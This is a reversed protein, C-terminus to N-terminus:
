EINYKLNFSPSSSSGDLKVSESSTLSAAGGGPGGLLLVEDNRSWCVDYRRRQQLTVITNTFQGDAFRLCSRSASEVLGGCLLGCCLTSQSREEGPLNSLACSNNSHPNFVEVTNGAAEGTGGAILVGARGSSPPPIIEKCAFPLDLGDIDSHRDNWKKARM